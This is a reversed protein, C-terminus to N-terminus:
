WGGRYYILIVPQEALIDYIQVPQHDTSTLQLQPFTDGVAPLASKSKIMSSEQGCVCTAMFATLLISLLYSRALKPM